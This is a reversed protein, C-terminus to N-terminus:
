SLANAASYGAAAAALGLVVSAGVYALAAPARGDRVLETAEYSFTSFTTFAGLFGVTAALRVSEQWRSAVGGLLLGLALSGAVNVALTTWPFDRTAFARGLGYRAVAGAAGAAAVALLRM